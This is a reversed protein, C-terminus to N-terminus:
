PAASKCFLTTMPHPDIQAKFRDLFSSSSMHWTPFRKGQEWAEAVKAESKSLASLPSLATSKHLLMAMPHMNIQAEFRDFFSGSSTGQQFSKADNKNIAVSGIFAGRKPSQFLSCCMNQEITKASRRSQVRGMKPMNFHNQQPCKTRLMFNPGSHDATCAQGSLMSWSVVKLFTM